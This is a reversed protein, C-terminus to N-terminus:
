TLKVQGVSHAQKRVGERLDRVDQIGNRVDKLRAKLQEITGEVSEIALQHQHKDVIAGKLKPLSEQAFRGWAAITEVLTRQAM